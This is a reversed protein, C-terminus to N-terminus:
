ITISRSIVTPDKPYGKCLPCKMGDLVEDELKRAFDDESDSDDDTLVTPDIAEPASPKSSAGNHSLDPSSKVDNSHTTKQKKPMPEDKHRKFLGSRKELSGPHVQTSAAKINGATLMEKLAIIPM